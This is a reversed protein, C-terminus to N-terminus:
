RADGAIMHKEPPEKRFRLAQWWVFLCILACLVILVSGSLAIGKWRHQHAVQRISQGIAAGTFQIGLGGSLMLLCHDKTKSMILISWLLLDLIVSCFSLDRSVETMWASLDSKPDRHILFSLTSILFAGLILWQRLGAKKKAQDTAKYILSIVVCFILVQLVADNIWYYLKAMNRAGFFDATSIAVEVVTTLFLTISYAFVFPFSKYPARILAALVLLELVLGIVWLSYQLM